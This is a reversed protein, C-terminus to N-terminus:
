DRLYQKWDESEATAKIVRNRELLFSRMYRSLFLTDALRGLIGLPSEFIFEDRMSTGHANSEFYHHHEMRRFAGSLMVDSFHAPRDFVDIRVTLLQWAGFHRARWTVQEGPGILGATVGAIAREGTRSASHTHLDISRSLDFVRHVPAAIQTTLEILPM